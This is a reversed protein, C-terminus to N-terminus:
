VINMVQEKIKELENKMNVVLRQIEADNAKSGITNIERLMEQAIFNLKKGVAMEEGNLVDLFYNCHNRLRVKEENIDIKELYYLLEQEFREADPSFSDPLENMGRELKDRIRQSRAKELDKIQDTQHQISHIHSLIDHYMNKGEYKRYTILQDTASKLADEVKNWEQEELTEQEKQLTNPLRMITSLMNDPELSLEHSIDKLQNYYSRVVEKHISPAAEENQYEVDIYVDIKGRYLTQTLENRLVIEKEKFFHPIKINIDIQKHNLSRIELTYHKGKYESEAKGYGTMSQIM